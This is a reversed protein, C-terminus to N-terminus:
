TQDSTNLASYYIVEHLFCFNDFSGSCEDRGVMQIKRCTYHLVKCGLPVSDQSCHSEGTVCVTAVLMHRNTCGCALRMSVWVVCLIRDNLRAVFSSGDDGYPFLKEGIKVPPKLQMEERLFKYAVLSCGRSFYITDDEEVYVARGYFLIYHSSDGTITVWIDSAASVPWHPAWPGPLDPMLSKNKNFLDLMQVVTPRAIETRMISDEKDSELCLSWPVCCLVLQLPDSSLTAKADAYCSRALESPTPIIRALRELFDNSTGLVRSSATVSDQASYTPVKRNVDDFEMLGPWNLSESEFHPSCANLKARRGQFPQCCLNVTIIWVEDNGFVRLVYYAQALELLVPVFNFLFTALIRHARARPFRYSRFREQSFSRDRRCSIQQRQLKRRNNVAAEQRPRKRERAKSLGGSISYQISRDM